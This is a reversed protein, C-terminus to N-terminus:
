QKGKLIYTQVNGKGKVRVQGRDEFVYKHKLLLYTSETVQILDPLGSQEMRSALNVADGWLDYSFKTTGIVGAIVSGSNIGIRMSIKIGVLESVEHLVQGIELAMAAVAEAHDPRVSPVGGVVMYSDGITKIKELGYKDTLEDFKSFVQNLLNVLDTAAMGETIGTFDVLDAFMITASPYSDAIKYDDAKLREVISSPFINLLLKESRVQEAELAELVRAKQAQFYRMVIYLISAVGILNMLFFIDKTHAPIKLANGAFVSNLQWSVAALGLFLGFWSTSQRAGLIMLAGVPSLIAWIALGSSAEFGGVVWQMFFPMVLLMILQTFIFYDFRKLRYFILLSTYSIILYFYPVAAMLAYGDGLGSLIYIWFFCILTETLVLIYLISRGIVDGTPDTAGLLVKRSIAALPNSIKSLVNM